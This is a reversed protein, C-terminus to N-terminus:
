DDKVPTSILKRYGELLEELKENESKTILKPNICVVETQRETVPIVIFEMGEKKERSLSEIVDGILDGMEKVNLYYVIILTDKIKM